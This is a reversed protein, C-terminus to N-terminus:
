IEWLTTLALFRPLSCASPLIIKCELCLFTPESTELSGFVRPHSIDKTNWCLVLVACPTIGSPILGYVAGTFEYQEANPFM